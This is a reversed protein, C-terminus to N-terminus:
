EVLSPCRACASAAPHRMRTCDHCATSSHHSPLSATCWSRDGAQRQGHPCRQRGAGVLVARAPLLPMVGPLLWHRVQRCGRWPRTWCATCSSSPTVPRPTRSASWACSTAARARPRPPWTPVTPATCPAPPAPPLPLPRSRSCCARCCRSRPSPAPPAARGGGSARLRSGQLHARLHPPAPPCAFCPHLHAGVLPAKWRHATPGHRKAAPDCVRAGVGM